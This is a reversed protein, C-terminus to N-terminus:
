SPGVRCDSSNEKRQEVRNFGPYIGSGGETGDSRRPSDTGRM